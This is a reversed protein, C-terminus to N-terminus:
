AMPGARIEGVFSILPKKFTSEDIFIDNFASNEFDLRYDSPLFSATQYHLQFSPFDRDVDGKAVLGSNWVLESLVPSPSVKLFYHKGRGALKVTKDASEVAIIKRQCESAVDGPQCSGVAMYVTLTVGLLTLCGIESYNRM